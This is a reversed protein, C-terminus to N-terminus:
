MLADAARNIDPLAVLCLVALIGVWRGRRFSM